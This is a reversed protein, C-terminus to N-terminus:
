QLGAKAGGQALDMKAGELMAQDNVDLMHILREFKMRLLPNPDPDLSLAGQLVIQYAGPHLVGSLRLAGALAALANMVFTDTLHEDTM